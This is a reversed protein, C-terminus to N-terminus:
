EISAGEKIDLIRYVLLSANVANTVANTTITASSIADIENDKTAGTKSYVIEEANKGRFQEYFSPKAANMGLGATESIELISVGNITGDNLIGVVITLDGGYGEHSTAKILYGLKEKNGYAIKIDDISVKNKYDSGDLILDLKIKTYDVFEDANAFVAKNAKNEALEKQKKIPEKTIHYVFGLLIGSVMTIIFLVFTDKIISKM